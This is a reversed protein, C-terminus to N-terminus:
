TCPGWADLVAFIDDINVVGDLNVDSLCCGDCDGWDGLVSFVDDIRVEGDGDVDGYIVDAPNGHYEFAGLDVVVPAGCGTDVTDPDDAFRAIGDADLPFRECTLGDNDLDYGDADLINNFGADICPSGPALHVDGNGADVFLPDDGFNGTGGYEGTWGQVCCFDMHLDELHVADTLSLQADQDSGGDDTNGWLVCNTITIVSEGGQIMIGGADPATNLASTCNLLTIRSEHTVMAGGFSDATNGVLLCGVLLTDSHSQALGTGKYAHNGVLRCNLLIPSDDIFKVAGGATVATNESFTCDILTASGNESYFGGGEANSSNSLFTCGRVYVSSHTCYIAGGADVTSNDQFTCNIVTLDSYYNYIAGGGYVSAHNGLFVCDRVTPSSYRNRLGGGGQASGGTITFGEILTDPGEDNLCSVIPGNVQAQITTVDSGDSSRVTIAKGLLDINEVYTGPHVIVEDGGLAVDIAAQISEGEYVHIEDALASGTGLASLCVAALATVWSNITLKASM